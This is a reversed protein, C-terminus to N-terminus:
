EGRGRQKSHYLRTDVKRHQKSGPTITIQPHHIVMYHHHHSSSHILPILHSRAIQTLIIRSASPQRRLFEGLRWLQLFDRPARRGSVGGGEPEPEPTSVSVSGSVSAALVLNSFIDIHARINLWHGDYYHWQLPWLKGPHWRGTIDPCTNVPWWTDWTDRECRLLWLKGRSEGSWMGASTLIVTM